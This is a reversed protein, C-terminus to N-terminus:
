SRILSVCVKLSEQSIIDPLASVQGTQQQDPTNEDPVTTEKTPYSTPLSDEYSHSNPKQNTKSSRIETERQVQLDQTFPRQASEHRPPPEPPEDTYTSLPPLREVGHVSNKYVRSIKHPSQHYKPEAPRQQPSASPKPRDYTKSPLPPPVDYTDILEHPQLYDTGSQESIPTIYYM